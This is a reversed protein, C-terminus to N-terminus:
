GDSMRVRVHNSHFTTVLAPLDAPVEWVPEPVRSRIESVVESCGPGRVSIAVGLLPCSARISEASLLTHNITGLQTGAVLLVGTPELKQVLDRFLLDDTFPVLWGGAGEVLTFPASSHRIWSCLDDADIHRHEARAALTPAAPLDFHAWITSRLDRHSARALLQADSTEANWGTEVPKLGIADLGRARLGEIVRTSVYTKGVGTDTGTVVYLSM